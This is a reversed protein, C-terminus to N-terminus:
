AFIDIFTKSQILSIPVENSLYISCVNENKGNDDHLVNMLFDINLDGMIVLFINESFGIAANVFVVTNM